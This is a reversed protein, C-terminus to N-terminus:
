KKKRRFIVSANQTLDASFRIQYREEGDYVVLLGTNPPYKGLNEAYLVLTVEDTTPGMYITKKIASAKLGQKALILEGNMLVSVTDGDIEGNDYLSFTLSDSVVSLTVEQPPKTKRENVAVAANVILIQPQTYAPLTPKKQEPLAAAPEQKRPATVVPESRTETPKVPEVNTSTPTTTTPKQTVAAVPAQRDPKVETSVPKQTVTAVPESKKQETITVVPEQRAPTVVTSAPKKEETVIPKQTVVAVPEMKPPEPKNEAPKQTIAAVPESQKPEPKKETPTITPKKEVAAVAESKKPQAPKAPPDKRTTTAIRRLEEDKEKQKAEVYFPVEKALNLEELHPIIKSKEMDPEDKLEVKGSISYFKKTKNTTWDGSLSWTSDQKNMHFTHTVKIGKDLKGRFNYSIIEDDTVECVDNEITGKVRKMIYFLTDNVIFTARSYGYVKQKYQTLVIEFSQDKRVTVSDNSLTGTWLGTLTKQAHFTIPIFFLLIFLRASKM